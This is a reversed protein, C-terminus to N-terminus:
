RKIEDSEEEPMGILKATIRGRSRTKTVKFRLGRLEFEDGIKILAIVAQDAKGSDLDQKLKSLLEPTHGVKADIINGKNYEQM